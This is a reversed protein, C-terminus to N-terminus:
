NGYIRVIVQQLDSTAAYDNEVTIANIQAARTASVPYRFFDNAKLLIIQTVDGTGPDYTISLTTNGNTPTVVLISEITGINNFPVTVPGTANNVLYSDESQGEATFEWVQYFPKISRTEDEISVTMKAM